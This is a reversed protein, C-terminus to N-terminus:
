LTKFKNGWHISTPFLYTDLDVRIIPKAWYLICKRYMYYMCYTNRITDRVSLTNRNIQPLTINIWAIWLSIRSWLNCRRRQLFVRWWCGPANQYFFTKQVKFFRELRISRQWQIQLNLLRLIPEQCCGWCLCCIVSRKFVEIGFLNEAIFNGDGPHGFSNTFFIAWFLELGNRAL